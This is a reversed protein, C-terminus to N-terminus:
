IMRLLTEFLDKAVSISQASAQYAQQMELLRAAERDLDVAGIAAQERASAESITRATAETRAAAAARIGTDAQLRTFRESLGPSGTVPDGLRLAAMALATDANASGSPASLLTFRDGTAAAGTLQLSLQGLSVRGTADIVGEAVRHGTHSDTLAIRGSTADLVQVTIGGPSTPSPGAAIQSSLRLAPAGTGLVILDEPPLNGLRLMQGFPGTTQVDLALPATAGSLTVTDGSRRIAVGPGGFGVAASPQMSLDNQPAPLDLVLAGTVPDRLAQGPFGASTTVGAPGLTVSHSQGAVDLLLTTPLDAPDPRQGTLVLRGQGVGLGFADSPVFSIAGGDTVGQASLILRNSEDFRATIRGAEPGAIEPQGATMRLTYDAGDIRLVMLSGDPPLGPLAAGTVQANAAGARLSQAMLAAADTASANGPIAALYSTGGLTLRHTEGTATATDFTLAARYGAQAMDVRVSGSVAPASALAMAGEVMDFPMPASLRVQGTQRLTDGSAWAQAPGNALGDSTAPRVTLPGGTLASLSIDHGDPQVLLVSAGDPSLEARIGTSPTLANIALALPSADPGSLSASVRLPAGNAGALSLAIPGATFDRLLLATEARAELGPMAGQLQRAAVAASAGEPLSVQTPTGNASLTLARAPSAALPPPGSRAESPGLALTEVGAGLATISTGRYGQVSQTVLASADYVVGPAFGNEPTLLAAVQQPTLPSGSVHRGNRTIVQLTGEAFTPDQSQRALMGGPGTLSASFGAGAPRTLTLNGDDGVQAVIGLSSLTKGAESRLSGERLANGLAEADGAVPLDFSHTQGDLTVALGQAAIPPAFSVQAPRGINGLTVATTGAAVVGLVGAPLAIEGQPLPAIVGGVPQPLIVASLQGMGTNSPSATAAFASAAALREPRDLAMRLDIARGTVPQLFVRDGDSARGSIEVNGGPLFLREAGAALEAGEADYARWLNAAGDFRLEIPTAAPGQTMQVNVNVKGGNGAGIQVGWGDHRMLDRGPTGTLDVGGRHLPNLAGVLDRAFGDLEQAALDLAGIARAHGGLHGSALLRTERTQGDATRLHLTMQDTASVRLEASRGGELLSPGSASGLNITPRGDVELRVSVPLYRALNELLADRRDALPHVASQSLGSASTTGAMHQSIDALEKLIGQARAADSQAQALLDGRLGVMGRALEAISNTLAEGSRLALTRTTLDTPNGALRSLNDFFARLTGDIGDDGPIMLTEIARAGALHTEAAAHGGLATRARESALADFARRIDSVSVGQGGTTMTVPTAQGGGAATTTIDRRRYGETGVNAINEATVALAQRYALLGSRGIDHINSM